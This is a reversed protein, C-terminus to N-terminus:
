RTIMYDNLVRVMWVPTHTTVHITKATRIWGLNSGIAPLFVTTIIKSM